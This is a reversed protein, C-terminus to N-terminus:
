TTISILTVGSISNHSQNQLQVCHNRLDLFTPNNDLLSIGNGLERKSLSWEVSHILVSDCTMYM